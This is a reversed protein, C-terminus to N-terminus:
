QREDRCLTVGANPKSISSMLFRAKIVADLALPTLREAYIVALLAALEDFQERTLHINTQAVNREPWDSIPIGLM